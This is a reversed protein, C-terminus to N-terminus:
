RRGRVGASEAPRPLPETTFTWTKGKVVGQPTLADVRWYYTTAARMPGPLFVPTTTETVRPPDDTTGFHVRYARANRGPTWRLTTGRAAIHTWGNGPRPLAAFPLVAPLTEEPDWRGGFTWAPTVDEPRPAGEAQDLNDAFWAYDGGDRHCDHFYSREPWDPHEPKGAPYIPRDAMTAAFRCGILFFQADHHYRGLPFGPVGDFRSHRIVLKQSRDKSGDHWISASLNHGFFRSDTVYSWGRPCVYDVWGEFDCDNHYSLGSAANWLSVTDGGGARLVASLLAIRTSRGGSRIAFQHDHDGGYDNEVTLNALTLDTVDGVNVVAAGWDNDHQARWASRLEAFVIRTLRRDEGVLAVHSRTAFLKERYTGNKVLVIVDRANGRPIADLAAQVTRFDGSGDQAVIFDAREARREPPAQPARCAVAALAIMVLAKLRVPRIIGRSANFFQDRAGAQALNRGTSGAHRRARAMGM